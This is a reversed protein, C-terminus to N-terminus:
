QALQLSLQLFSLLFGKWTRLILLPVFQARQLTVLASESAREHCILAFRYMTRRFSKPPIIIVVTSLIARFRTEGTSPYRVSERWRVEFRRTHQHHLRLSIPLHMIRPNLALGGNGSITFLFITPRNRPCLTQPIILTGLNLATQFLTGEVHTTHTLKIFSVPSDNRWIFIIVGGRRM